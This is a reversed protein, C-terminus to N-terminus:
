EDGEDDATLAQLEALEAELAAHWARHTHRDLVLAGCYGCEYAGERLERRGVYAFSHARPLDDGM